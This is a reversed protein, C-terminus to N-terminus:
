HAALFHDLATRLKAADEEDREKEAARLARCIGLLHRFEFEINSQETVATAIQLGIEEHQEDYEDSNSIPIEPPDPVDHFDSSSEITRSLQVAQRLESVKWKKEVAIELFKTQEDPPLQAVEAHHSFSLKGNRRYIPVRKAVSMANYLTQKAYEGIAQSFEQGFFEEGYALGDGIIWLISRHYEQLKEMMGSWQEYSLKAKIELGVPSVKVGKPIALLNQCGKM